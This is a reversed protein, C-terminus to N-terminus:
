EKGAFMTKLSGKIQKARLGEMTPATDADFAQPMNLGVMGASM